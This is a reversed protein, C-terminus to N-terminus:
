YFLSMIQLPVKKQKSFACYISMILNSTVMYLLVLDHTLM